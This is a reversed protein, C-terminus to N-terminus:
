LVRRLIGRRALREAQSVRRNPRRVPTADDEEDVATWVWWLAVMCITSLALAAILAGVIAWVEATM